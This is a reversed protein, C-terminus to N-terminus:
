AGFLRRTVARAVPYLSAIIGVTPTNMRPFGHALLVLVLAGAAPRHWLDLQVLGSVAKPKFAHFVDPRWERLRRSATRAMALQELFAGVVPVRGVAPPVIWEIRLNDEAYMAWRSGDPLAEVVPEVDSELIRPRRRYEEWVSADVDGININPRHRLEFTNIGILKGVLDEEMYRGMGDVISVVAILFMVGICVGLLTFFSKLKQVRLTDLALRLAELLQV